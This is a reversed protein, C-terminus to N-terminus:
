RTATTVHTDTYNGTVTGAVPIDALAFAYPQPPDVHIYATKTEPDTGCANGVTLTVTYDGATTYEHAPNQASSTGLDGFDWSWSDPNDSSLDTFNVTLPAPGSTPSGVFDALPVGAITIYDTKIESDSGAPGTVTLSVTYAEPAAYEHNPNQQTSTGTDGFEWYWSTIEGTSQDTFGVTLPACGSTPTGSFEAMIPPNEEIIPIQEDYRYYNAKTVTVRLTGAQTQPTIPIDQLAGTADAVGIIEGDVTLAIVSGEDAQVAFYSTNTYLADDHAVTLYQPVESYLTMFADGHHHFLHYTEDKNSTNYPWSSAQLYYKGSANAFATRLDDAGTNKSGYGPDFQPWLGDFMGWVFTDNVFSYSIESAAILGLAGYGMRHFRETFCESSSNYKGTLCNISFVFPYMDNNLGSLHSITYYPEGWGTVGGHDRHMLIYAGSNIDNNIRTANGDWDTLHEPTAPLYGLGDPGFYDVVTSTNPATSWVSGPSGSYIAYERVPHKGLVNAQFGYIVESCLIFWRETQWGGAMIPHDYFGADTYPNQEYSLMKNIMTQLEGADRGTIRGHTMEPLDDGDVDAYINDSVCYNNWTPATIGHPTGAGPYDGLILFAVPPVEWNNYANNLFSEIAATSSGGIDTTTFVATTIGQLKRWDKLTNGWTIFDSQDPTIIVYEYGYRNGLPANLDGQPPIDHRPPTDHRQLTDYRPLTEYNILHSELIPEWYRSRLREDGFQGNGGHFDIRIELETYVVLERTLPNYQFPTIGLTVADVGRIKQSESLLVPSEPYYADRNYITLDREYVLPSDDGERPIIPAPAIDVDHYIRTRQAVIEFSAGAGQPLAVFRGMGPLDPAGANNPLFVHPLSIRQRIEGNIELPEMSFADMAYRLEIGDASQSRLTIGPEGTTDAIPIIRAHPTGTCLLAATVAVM